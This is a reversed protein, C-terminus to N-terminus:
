KAEYFDLANQIFRNRIKAWKNRFHTLNCGLAAAAQKPTKHEKMAKVIDAETFKTKASFKGNFTVGQKKLISYLVPRSVGFDIELQSVTAKEDGMYRRYVEAKQETNLKTAM